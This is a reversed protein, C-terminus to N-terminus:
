QIQGLYTDLTLMPPLSIAHSSEPAPQGSDSVEWIRPGGRSRDPLNRGPMNGGAVPEPSSTPVPTKDLPFQFSPAPRTKPQDTGAVVSREPLSSTWAGLAESWTLRWEECLPQYWFFRRMADEVDALCRAEDFRAFFACSLWQGEQSLGRGTRWSSIAVMWIWILCEREPERSYPEGPCPVFPLSRTLEQRSGRYSTIKTHSDAHSHINFCFLIITLCISEELSHETSAASHLCSCADFIDPYEQDEPVPDKDIALPQRSIKSRLFISVRSLIQLVDIGLTGKQAIAAFGSPLTAIMSLIDDRFPHQPYVRHKKRKALPFISETRTELTWFYDFQILYAKVLGRRGLKDLGGKLAVMLALGKRNSINDEKYMVDLAALALVTLLTGDDPPGAMNALQDRLISAARHRHFGVEASPKITPDQRSELYAQSLAIGAHFAAEHSLILPFAWSMMPNVLNVAVLLPQHLPSLVQTFHDLAGVVCPTQQGPFSNFPDVRTGSFGIKVPSPILQWSPDEPPSPSEAGTKTELRQTDSPEGAEQSLRSSSESRDHRRPLAYRPHSQQRVATRYKSSIHSKVARRHSASHNPTNYNLFTFRKPSTEDPTAM